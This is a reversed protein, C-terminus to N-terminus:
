WEACFIRSRQQMTMINMELALVSLYGMFDEADPDTGSVFTCDVPPNMVQHAKVSVGEPFPINVVERTTLRQAFARLWDAEEMCPDVDAYINSNLTLTPRKDSRFGPNSLLLITHSPKWYAASAAIRGYLALIADRTDDFIMVNVVDVVEGRKTTVTQM